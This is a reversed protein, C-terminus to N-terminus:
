NASNSAKTTASVTGTIVSESIAEPSAEENGGCVDVSLQRPIFPSQHSFPVSPDLRKRDDCDAGTQKYDFPVAHAWGIYTLVDEFHASILFLSQCSCFLKPGWRVAHPSKISVQVVKVVATKKMYTPVSCRVDMPKNVQTDINLNVQSTLLISTGGADCVTYDQLLIVHLVKTKHTKLLHEM